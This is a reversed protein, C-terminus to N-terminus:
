RRTHNTGSWCSASDGTTFDESLRDRHASARRPLKSSVGMYLTGDRCQGHHRRYTEPEITGRTLGNGRM